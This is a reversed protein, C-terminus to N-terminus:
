VTTHQPYLIRSFNSSFKPNYMRPISHSSSFFLPLFYFSLILLLFVLLQCSCPCVKIKQLVILDFMKELSSTSFFIDEIKLWNETRKKKMISIKRRTLYTMSSTIRNKGGKKKLKLDSENKSYIYKRSKARSQFTMQKMFHVPITIFKM